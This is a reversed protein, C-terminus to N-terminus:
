IQEPTAFAPHTWGGRHEEFIYDEPAPRFVGDEHKFYVHYHAQVPIFWHARIPKTLKEENM